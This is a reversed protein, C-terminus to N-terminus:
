DALLEKARRIVARLEDDSFKELLPIVLAFHESVRSEKSTSTLAGGDGGGSGASKKAKRWKGDKAQRRGGTKESPQGNSQPKGATSRKDKRSQELEIKKEVQKRIKAVYKDDVKAHESVWRDSRQTWKPDQLLRTVAREKDVETRRSGHDTNAGCSYLVADRQTGERVDCGLKEWGIAKAAFYRHFGDALWHNTGDFFVTAAPFEDGARMEEAYEEILEGITYARPQTDGDIRISALPLQKM